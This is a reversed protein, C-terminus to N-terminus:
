QGGGRKARGSGDMGPMTRSRRFREQAEQEQRMVTASPLLLVKEGDALGSLVETYEWDSLGAIVSRM